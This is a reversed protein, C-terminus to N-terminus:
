TKNAKWLYKGIKDKANKNDDESLLKPINMADRLKYGFRTYDIGNKIDNEIEWTQWKDVFDSFSDTEGKRYDMVAREYDNDFEMLLNENGTKEIKARIMELSNGYVSKNFNDKFQKWKEAYRKTQRTHHYAKVKKSLTAENKYDQSLRYEKTSKGQEYAKRFSDALSKREEELAKLTAQKMETSLNSKNIYDRNRRYERGIANDFARKWGSSPM